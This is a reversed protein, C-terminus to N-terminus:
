TYYVVFLLIGVVFSVFQTSAASKVIQQKSFDAIELSQIDVM